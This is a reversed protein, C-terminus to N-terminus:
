RASRRRAVASYPGNPRHVSLRPAETRAAKVLSRGLEILRRGIGKARTAGQESQGLLAAFEARARAEAVRSRVIHEVIYDDAEM